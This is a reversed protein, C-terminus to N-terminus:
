LRRGQADKNIGIQPQSAAPRIFVNSPLLSWRFLGSTPITPPQDYGRGLTPEGFQQMPREDNPVQTTSLTSDYPIGPLIPPDLHAEHRDPAPGEGSRGHLPRPSCLSYSKFVPTFFIQCPGTM